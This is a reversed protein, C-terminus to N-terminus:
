DLEQTQCRRRKPGLQVRWPRPDALPWRDPNLRPSARKGAWGRSHHLCRHYVQLSRRLERLINCDRILCCTMVLFTSCLLRRTTSPGWLLAGRHAPTRKNGAGFSVSQLREATGKAFMIDCVLTVKGHVELMFIMTQTTRAFSAGKGGSVLAFVAKRGAATPASGQKRPSEGTLSTRKLM